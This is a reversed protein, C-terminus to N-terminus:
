EIIPKLVAFQGPVFVMCVNILTFVDGVSAIAETLLGVMQLPLVVVMVGDPAM